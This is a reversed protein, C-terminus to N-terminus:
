PPRGPATAHPRGARPGAPTRALAGGAGPLGRSQPPAIFAGRRDRVYQRRRKWVRAPVSARGRGAATPRADHRRMGVHPRFQHDSAPRPRHPPRTDRRDRGAHAAATARPRADRHAGFGGSGGTSPPRSTASVIPTSHRRGARALRQSLPLMRPFPRSRISRLSPCRPSSSPPSSTFAFSRM